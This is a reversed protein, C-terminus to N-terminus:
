KTRNVIDSRANKRLRLYWLAGLVRFPAAVRVLDAKASEMFHLGRLRAKNTYGWVELRLTDKLISRSRVGVAIGNRPRM